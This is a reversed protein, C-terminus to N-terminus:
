VRCTCHVCAIIYIALHAMGHLINKGADKPIADNLTHGIENGVKWGGMQDHLFHILSPCASAWGYSICQTLKRQLTIFSVQWVDCARLDSMICLPFMELGKM